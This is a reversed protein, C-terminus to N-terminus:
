TFAPAYMVVRVVPNQEVVPNWCLLFSLLSFFFFFHVLLNLNVSLFSFSSNTIKTQAEMCFPLLFYRYRVYSIFLFVRFWTSYYNCVLFIYLFVFHLSWICYVSYLVCTCSYLTCFHGYKLDYWSLFASMKWECNRGPTLFSM